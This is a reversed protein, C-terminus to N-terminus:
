ARRRIAAHKSLAFRRPLLEVHFPVPSATVREIISLANKMAFRYDPVRYRSSASFSSRSIFVDGHAITYKEAMTGHRHKNERRSIVIIRATHASNFFLYSVRVSLNASDAQHVGNQV